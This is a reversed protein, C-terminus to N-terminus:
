MLSLERKKYYLRDALYLTGLNFFWYIAQVVLLTFVSRILAMFGASNDWIIYSLSLAIILVLDFAILFVTQCYAKGPTLLKDWLPVMVIYQLLLSTVFFVPATYSYFLKLDAFTFENTLPLSHSSFRMVINGLWSLMVCPVYVSILLKILKKM